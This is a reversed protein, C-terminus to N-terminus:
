QEFPFLPRRRHHYHFRTMDAQTVGPTDVQIITPCVPAYAALPANVGKAIIADFDAPDVGQSLLQQLSFPMVRRSTLMIVSGQATRVVATPGMNFRTQGGHRPSSEVFEGNTLRLLTVEISRSEIGDGGTGTLKLEFPQGPQFNGAISVAGPDYLCVFYRQSKSAEFAELIALSNGPGGGGVNDGMDLLLVPKESSEVLALATEISIRVGVFSDRQSLILGELVRATELAKAVARYGANFHAMVEDKSPYDGPQAEVGAKFRDDWGAPNPVVLDPRGLMGLAHQPYISLHAMYFAPCVVDKAPFHAFRDAPITKTLVDAYGLGLNLGSLVYSAYPM